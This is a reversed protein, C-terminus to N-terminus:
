CNKIYEKNYHLCIRRAQALKDTHISAMINCGTKEGNKMMRFYQLGREKAFATRTYVERRVM